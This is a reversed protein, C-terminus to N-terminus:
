RIHESDANRELAEHAAQGFATTDDAYGETREDWYEREYGRGPDVDEIEAEVRRDNLYVDVSCSSDPDREHLVQMRPTWADPLFGGRAIWEDLAAVLETMREFDGLADRLVEIEDDNSDTKAAEEANPSHVVRVARVIQRLETLNANPDM